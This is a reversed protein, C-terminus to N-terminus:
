TTGVNMEFRNQQQKHSPRYNNIRYSLGISINPYKNWHDLTMTYDEGHQSYKYRFTNLFNQFSLTASFRQKFFDQRISLGAIFFGKATGNNHLTTGNYMLSLQTRTNKFVKYNIMAQGSYAVNEGYFNGNETTGENSQWFVSGSANIGLKKGIQFNGGLEIGAYKESALNDFTILLKGDPMLSFVRGLANNNQKYFLSATLTSKKLMLLMNLEYADIFEPELKPNGTQYTYDDSYMPILNLAWDDPYNVRRSYSAQLTFVQGFTRSLHISPFFYINSFSFTTDMPQLEMDRKYYESRLGLQFDITFVTGSFTAYAAHKSEDFREDQTYAPDAVWEGSNIDLDKASVKGRFPRLTYLYGLELGLGNKWTNAYDIGANAETMSNDEPLERSFM